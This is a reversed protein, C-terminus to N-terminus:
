GFKEVMWKEIEEIPKKLRYSVPTKRGTWEIFGELELIGLEMVIKYRESNGHFKRGPALEEGELLSTITPASVEDSTKFAELTKRMVVRFHELPCYHSYPKEKRARAVVSSKIVEWEFYKTAFKKTVSSDNSTLANGIKDLIDKVMGAYEEAIRYNEKMWPKPKDYRIM